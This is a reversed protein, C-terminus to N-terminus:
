LWSWRLTLHGSNYEDFVLKVHAGDALQLVYVQGTMSVGMGSPSMEWFTKLLNDPGDFGSFRSDVMYNCQDDFFNEIAFSAPVTTVSAFDGSVEAASVCSPGSDGSNLRVFTRRAGLDWDQSDLSTEDDIEVKSLGDAAFKVYVFPNSTAQGMGGASADIQSTFVGDSETTSVLAVSAFDQLSIQQIMEDSCYPQELECLGSNGADDQAAADTVSGADPSEDGPACALIFSFLGAFVVHKIM